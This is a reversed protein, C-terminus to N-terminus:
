NLSTWAITNADSACSTSAAVPTVEGSVAAASGVKTTAMVRSLKGAEEICSEKPIDSSTITVGLGTSVVTIQGGWTNQLTTGTVTLTKPVGEMAILAPVLNTGSAGYGTSGRLSKVNTQLQSIAQLDTATDKKTFLAKGAIIAGIILALGTLIVMILELATFGASRKKATFSLRTNRM